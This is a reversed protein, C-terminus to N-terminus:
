VKWRKGCAFCNSIINMPEDASRLQVEVSATNMSKCKICANVGVLVSVNRKSRDLDALYVNRAEKFISSGFVVDSRTTKPDEMIQEVFTMFNDFGILVCGGIVEYTISPYDSSLFQTGDPWKVSMMRSVETPTFTRTGNPIGEVLNPISITCLTTALTASESVSPLGMLPLRDMLSPGKIPQITAM